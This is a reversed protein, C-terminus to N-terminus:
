AEGADQNRSFPAAGVWLIDLGASAYFEHLAPSFFHSPKRPHARCPLVGSPTRFFELRNWKLSSVSHFELRCYM